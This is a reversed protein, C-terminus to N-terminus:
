GRSSRWESDATRVASALPCLSTTDVLGSNAISAAIRTDDHAGAVICLAIILLLPASTRFQSHQLRDPELTADAPVIQGRRQTAVNVM